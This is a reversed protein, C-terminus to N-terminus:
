ALGSGNPHRFLAVEGIAKPINSPFARTDPVWAQGTEDFRLAVAM